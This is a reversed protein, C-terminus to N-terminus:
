SFLAEADAHERLLDVIPLFLEDAGRRAMERVEAWTKWGWGECKDPELLQACENALADLMASAFGIVCRRSGHM